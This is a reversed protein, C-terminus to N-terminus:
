SFTVRVSGSGCNIDIKKDTTGTQNSVNCTGSGVTKEITYESKTGVIKLNLVGSTVKAKIEQLSSIKNISVTGSTVSVDVYNVTSNHVSVTGSQNEVKLTTCDLSEVMLSGTKLNIDLTDTKTDEVLVVGSTTDVTMSEAVVNKASAGGTTATLNLSDFNGGEILIFAMEVKLDATIIGAFSNDLTIEIYRNEKKGWSYWSSNGLWFWGSGNYEVKATQLINLKGNEFEVSFCDQDSPTNIVINNEGVNGFHLWLASNTNNAVMEIQNDDAVITEHKRDEQSFNGSAIDTFTNSIEKAGGNVAGIAVLVVGGILCLIGLAIFFKKM